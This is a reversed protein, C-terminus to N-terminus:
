VIAGAYYYIVYVIAGLFTVLLIGKGIQDQERKVMFHRMFFANIGILLLILKESLTKSVYSGSVQMILYFLAYLVVPLFIGILVGTIMRDKELM